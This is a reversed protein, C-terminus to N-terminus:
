YWYFYCLVIMNNLTLILTNSMKIAFNKGTKSSLTTPQEKIRVTSSYTSTTQTTKDTNTKAENMETRTGKHTVDKAAPVAIIEESTEVKSPTTLIGNFKDIPETVVLNYNVTLTEKTNHLDTITEDVQINSNVNYESPTVTFVFNESTIAYQVAEGASEDTHVDLDNKGSDNIKTSYQLDSTIEITDANEESKEIIGNHVKDNQISSNNVTQMIEYKSELNQEDSKSSINTIMDMTVMDKEVNNSLNVMVAREVSYNSDNKDADETVIQKKKHTNINHSLTDTSKKIRAYRTKDVLNSLGTFAEIERDTNPGNCLDGRCPCTM